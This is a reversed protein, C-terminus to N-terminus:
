LYGIWYIIHQAFKFMQFEQFQFSGSQFFIETWIEGMNKSELKIEVKWPGFLQTPYPTKLFMVQSSQGPEMM